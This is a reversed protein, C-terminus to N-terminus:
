LLVGQASSETHFSTPESECKVARLLAGCYYRVTKM